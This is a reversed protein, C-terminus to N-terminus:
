GDSWCGCVVGSVLHSGEMSQVEVCAWQCLPSKCVYYHWQATSALAGSANEAVGLSVIGWWDRSARCVLLLRYWLLCLSNCRTAALLMSATAALLMSDRHINERFAVFCWSLWRLFFFFFESFPVFKVCPFGARIHLSIGFVTGSIVRWLHAKM